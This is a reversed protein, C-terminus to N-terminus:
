PRKALFKLQKLTEAQLPLDAQGAPFGNKRLVFALADAVAQPQLSGPNDAPMSIRTREFLDNLSLDNWAALFEDGALPPAQDIGSLDPAHCTACRDTYIVEGRKAQAESYVGDWTTRVQPM